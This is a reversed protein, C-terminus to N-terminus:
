RPRATEPGRGSRRGRRFRPRRTRRPCVPERRDRPDRAPPRRTWSSSITPSPSRRATLSFRDLHGNGLELVRRRIRREDELRARGSGGDHSQRDLVGVVFRPRVPRNRHDREGGDPDNAECGGGNKREVKLRCVILRLRKARHVVDACRRCIPGGVLCEHVLRIAIPREREDTRPDAAGRKQHGSVQPQPGSMMRGRRWWTWWAPRRQGASQMPQPRRLCSPLESPSLRKHVGDWDELPWPALADEESHRYGTAPGARSQSREPFRTVDLVRGLTGTERSNGPESSATSCAAFNPWVTM